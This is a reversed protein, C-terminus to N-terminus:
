KLLEYFFLSPVIEDLYWPKVLEKLAQVAGNLEPHNFVRRGTEEDRESTNVETDIQYLGYTLREDYEVCEKARAMVAHWAEM